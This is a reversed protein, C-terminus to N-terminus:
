APLLGDVSIMTRCEFPPTDSSFLGRADHKSPSPNPIVKVVPISPLMAHAHLCITLLPTARILQSSLMSVVGAGGIGGGGCGSGGFVGGGDGVGGDEGGGGGMGEDGGGGGDDGGGGVDGAM